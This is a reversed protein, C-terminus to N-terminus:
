DLSLTTKDANMESEKETAVSGSAVREEQSRRGRQHKNSWM